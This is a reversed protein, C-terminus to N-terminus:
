HVTKDSSEIQELASQQALTLIKAEGGSTLQSFPNRSIKRKEVKIAGKDCLSKIAGSGFDNCLATYEAEKNAKLYELAQTQKKASASLQIDNAFVAYRKYAERVKGLRMETPLFLRLAASKPVRYRSSISQMLSFCEPILAPVEDLVEAIPKLKEAPYSSTRSVGIVFGDIVRGGFPVKVRSGINLGDPCTYEFIKDVQSHAIDVIVQAFM